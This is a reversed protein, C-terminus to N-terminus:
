KNSGRLILKLPSPKLLKFTISNYDKGSMVDALCGDVSTGSQMIWYSTFDNDYDSSYVKDYIFILGPFSKSIFKSGNHILGSQTAQLLENGNYIKKM